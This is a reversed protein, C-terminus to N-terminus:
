MFFWFDKAPKKGWDTLQKRIDVREDPSAVAVLVQPKKLSTILEFSSMIIGYVDKGIKRENDCVWYFQEDHKLLEKALDKGNRGAGWLVLPRETNRDLKYFNEVKLEFYRNDKYEDWTRSIRNSRDRWYHLVKDMGVIKLGNAYMRFCLDYDEPYIEPDFGGIREFDNRHMMWSHSPIVCEQYIQEYHTNTRAVENLWNEYRLFGGGVEGEDVFHLTGGAVVYGEGHKMWENVMVEIKDYPMRDDSDMRNLLQGTAHPYAEKLTPILKQRISNFAKIRNDSQAYEILIDPTNDSSHDNLAILEWNTYTQALISDLCERLFSATDKAAM